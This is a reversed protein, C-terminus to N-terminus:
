ACGWERPIPPRPPFGHAVRHRGLRRELARTRLLVTPDEWPPGSLADDLDGRALGLDALMRDDAAALRMADRRYRWASLARAAGTAVSRSLPRHAALSATLLTM